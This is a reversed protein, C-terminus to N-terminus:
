QSRALAEVAEGLEIDGTYVAKGVIAAEVGIESLRLLHDISSVGGAVIMNLGTFDHLGIIADWNPETLTGDQAIDTYVFRQVGTGELQRLLEFPRLGITETWGHLAVYGDRTDISVVIKESGLVECASRVVDMGSGAATGIIIRSLGLSIVQSATELSRIGGGLQVPVSVAAAIDVAVTHNVPAGGRAADLDVVHIRKAGLEAWHIAVEVPSESYVTERGYDGQYLRVCKGDKIDIAPIVEM